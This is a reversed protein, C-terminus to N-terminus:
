KNNNRYLYLNNYFNNNLSESIQILIKLVKSVILNNNYSNNNTIFHIKCAEKHYKILNLTTNLRFRTKRHM